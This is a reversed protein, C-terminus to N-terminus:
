KIKNKVEEFIKESFKKMHKGKLRNEDPFIEKEKGVNMKVGSDIVGKLFAYVRSKHLNKIMGFDMIPTKNKDKSIKKGFLLGTLYAAPISKLSGQMEKPWGYEMLDKSTIGFEVKDVANKSTIYQAIIYRNTKRFVVRPSDGKLLKLRKHYNTKNEIRRRKITRM